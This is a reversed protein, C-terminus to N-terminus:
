CYICVYVTLGDIFPLGMLSCDVCGHVTFVDM